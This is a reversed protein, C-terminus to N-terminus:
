ARREFEVGWPAGDATGDQVGAMIMTGAPSFQMAQMPLELVREPAAEAAGEADGRMAGRLRIKKPPGPRGSTAPDRARRARAGVAGRLPAAPAAAAPAGRLYRALPAFRSPLFGERLVRLDADDLGQPYTKAFDELERDPARQQALLIERPAEVLVGQCKNRPALREEFPLKRVHDPDLHLAVLRLRGCSEGEMERARVKKQTALCVWAVPKVCSAGMGSRRRFAESGDLLELVGGEQMQDKYARNVVKELVADTVQVQNGHAELHTPIGNAAIKGSRAASAANLRGPQRQWFLGQLAQHAVHSDPPLGFGVAARQRADAVEALAAARLPVFRQAGKPARADAGELLESYFAEVRPGDAAAYVAKAGWLYTSWKDFCAGRTKPGAGAVCVALDEVDVAQGAVGQWVPLDSQQGGGRAGIAPDPKETVAAALADYDALCGEGLEAAPQCFAEASMQTGLAEDDDEPAPALQGEGAADRAGEGEAAGALEDAEGAAAGAQFRLADEALAVADVDAM